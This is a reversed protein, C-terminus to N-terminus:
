CTWSEPADWVPRAAEARAQARTIGIDYLQADTLTNLQRRSRLLNIASRFPLRAPRKPHRNHILALSM